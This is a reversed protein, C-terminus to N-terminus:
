VIENAKVASKEIIVDFSKCCAYPTTDDTYGHFYLILFFTM